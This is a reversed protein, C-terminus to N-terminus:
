PRSAERMMEDVKTKFEVSRGSTYELWPVFPASYLGNFIVTSPCRFDIADGDVRVLAIDCPVDTAGVAEASAYGADEGRFFWWHNVACILLYIGFGYSAIRVMNWVTSRFPSRGAVISEQTFAALTAAGAVFAFVPTWNMATGAIAGGAFVRAFVDLASLFALSCLLVVAFLGARLAPHGAPLARLTLAAHLSVACLAFLFLM